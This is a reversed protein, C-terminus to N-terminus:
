GIQLNAPPPAGFWLALFEAKKSTASEIFIVFEGPAITTIGNLPVSSGFANSADDMRWGPINQPAIGVNKVEFWDAALASNGSAWPAVESIILAPTGGTSGTISLTYNTSADLDLGVAPNNVSVTVFYSSKASSSLLTGAKLYLGTGTIQFFG